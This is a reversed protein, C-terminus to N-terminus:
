FEALPRFAAAALWIAAGCEPKIRRLASARLKVKGLASRELGPGRPKLRADVAETASRSRAAILPQHNLPLRGSSTPVPGGLVRPALYCSALRQM